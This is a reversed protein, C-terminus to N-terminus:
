FVSKGGIIIEKNDIATSYLIFGDVYKHPQSIEWFLRVSNNAEQNAAKITVSKEMLAVRAEAIDIDEAIHYSDLNDNNNVDYFDISKFVLVQSRSIASGATNVASCLYHGSNEGSANRILLSNNQLMVINRNEKM